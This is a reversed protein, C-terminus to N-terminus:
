IRRKLRRAICLEEELAPMGIYIEDVAAPIGQIDRRSAGPDSRAHQQARQLRQFAHVQHRAPSGPYPHLVNRTAGSTEGGGQVDRPVQIAHVKAAAATGQPQAVRYSRSTPYSLTRPNAYRAFLM